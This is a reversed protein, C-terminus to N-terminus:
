QYERLLSRLRHTHSIRFLVDEPVLELNLQELISRRVSESSTLFLLSAAQRSEVKNVIQGIYEELVSDPMVRVLAPLFYGFEILQEINDRIKEPCSSVHRQEVKRSWIRIDEILHSTNDKPLKVVKGMEEMKKGRPHYNSRKRVEISKNYKYKKLFTLNNTFGLRM